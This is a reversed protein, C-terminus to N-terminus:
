CSESVSQTNTYNMQYILALIQVFIAANALVSYRVAKEYFKEVSFTSESVKITGNCNLGVFEGEVSLFISRRIKEHEPVINM